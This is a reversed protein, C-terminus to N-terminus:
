RRSFAACRFAEGAGHLRADMNPGLFEALSQDLTGHWGLDRAWAAVDSFNVDATIDQLGPMEYVADGELRQHNRYARLTGQPRRHYVSEATGGYDIALMAGERWVPAMGRMWGRAADPIEVQQGDPWDLKFATSDPLTRSPPLFVGALRREKVKLHLESWGGSEKRFVRFPFADLFENHFVLACGGCAALADEIGDHWRTDFGRLAAKQRERLSTSTEVLHLTIRRRELWGFARMTEAALSGDGPGCEIVHFSKWGRLAAEARLWATISRGVGSALEPATTFDGNGGIGRINAAYYGNGPHHLAIQM